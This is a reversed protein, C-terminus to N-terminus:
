SLGHQEEDFEKIDENLQKFYNIVNQINMISAIWVLYLAATGFDFALFYGQLTSTM